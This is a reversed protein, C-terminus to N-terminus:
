LWVRSQLVPHPARIAQWRCGHRAVVVYRGAEIREYQVSRLFEAFGQDDRM